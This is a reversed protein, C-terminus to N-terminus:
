YIILLQLVEECILSLTQNKDKNQGSIPEGNKLKVLRQRIFNVVDQSTSCNRYFLGCYFVISPHLPPAREQQKFPSQEYNHM